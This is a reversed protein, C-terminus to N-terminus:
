VQTHQQPGLRAASVLYTRTHQGAGGSVRRGEEDRGSVGVVGWAGNSGAVGKTAKSGRGM